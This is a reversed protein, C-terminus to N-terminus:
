LLINTHYKTFKDFMCEMEEYFSGKEDDIKNEIPAHVNLVIIHYWRGRLIIYSMRDNVFDVRRFASTIRKLFFFDKGLRHKGNGKGYFFTYEGPPTTGSGEWRVERV